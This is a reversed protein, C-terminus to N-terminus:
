NVLWLHLKKFIGFANLLPFDFVDGGSSKEFSDFRCLEAPKVLFKASIMLKILTKEGNDYSM